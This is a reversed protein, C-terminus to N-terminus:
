PQNRTTQLRDMLKQDRRLYNTITERTIVQFYVNVFFAPALCLSYNFTINRIRSSCFVARSEWTRTDTVPTVDCTRQIIQNNLGHLGYANVFKVVQVVNVVQVVQVVQLGQVGQGSPGGQGGLCDQGCPGGRRGLGGPSGVRSLCCCVVFSLYCYVVFM